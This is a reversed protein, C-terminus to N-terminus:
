YSGFTRRDVIGFVEELDLTNMHFDWLALEGWM